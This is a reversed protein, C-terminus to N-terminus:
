KAVVQFIAGPWTLSICKLPSCKYSLRFHQCTLLFCLFAPGCACCPAVVLFLPLSMATVSCLISYRFYPVLVHNHFAMTCCPLVVQFNDFSCTFSICTHPVRYCPFLFISLTVFHMTTGFSQCSLCFCPVLVYYHFACRHTWIMGPPLSAADLAPVAYSISSGGSSAPLCVRFLACTCYIHVFRV